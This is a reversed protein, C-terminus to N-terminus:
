LASTDLEEYAGLVEKLAACIADCGGEQESEVNMPMLPEHLSKRLLFWGQVEGDDYSVRVGEFNPSVVSMAPADDSAAFKELGELVGDAYAAFDSASLKMRIERAEAPEKLGAIMSSIKKKEMALRATKIVILTALYAGDDLFHNERFACHGSTEIALWSEEGGANLEKSRDIVNKYGRKFRLHKMGLAGELFDHLHDSTISDTVVTTGPHDECVLAAALAVIGNRAIENGNEDVAASRDVDTDFIIGLDAGAEKVSSSIAEMAEKNEPNPIHNPFMGDPELFTGVVKAGLPELVDKAYFGGAGNGADVCITLGALPKPIDPDIGDSILKRLHASYIDMLATGDDVSFVRVTEPSVSDPCASAAELIAKIDAKGLGGEKTFFKFGNRHYPLHSATIMVAGDCEFDEFVTSMFMAPTSALGCDMVDADEQYAGMAFARALAEGSIRPDRGISIRLEDTDKGTKDALWDAFALGIRFAATEDLNVEDGPVGAVAIGRIDSGNQLKMYDM